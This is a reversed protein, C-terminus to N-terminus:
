SHGGLEVNWIRADELSPPSALGARAALEDAHARAGEVKSRWSEGSGFMADLLAVKIAAHRAALESDDADAEVVRAQRSLVRDGNVPARVLLLDFGLYYAADTSEDFLVPATQTV